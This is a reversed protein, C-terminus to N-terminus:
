RKGAIHGRKGPALCIARINATFGARPLLCLAGPLAVDQNADWVAALDTVTERLCFVFLCKAGRSGECLRVLPKWAPVPLLIEGVEWLIPFSGWGGRWVCVILKGYILICDM